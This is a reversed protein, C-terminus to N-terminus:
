EKFSEMELNDLIFELDQEYEKIRDGIMICAIGVANGCPSKFWYERLTVVVKAAAHLGALSSEMGSYSKKGWKFKAKKPASKQKVDEYAALMSEFSGEALGAYDAFGYSKTGLTYNFGKKCITGVWWIAGNGDALALKSNSVGWQARTRDSALQWSLVPPLVVKIRLSKGDSIGLEEVQHSRKEKFDEQEKRNLRRWLSYILPKIEGQRSADLMLAKQAQNFAVDYERAEDAAQAYAWVSPFDDGRLEAAKKAFPYADKAKRREIYM